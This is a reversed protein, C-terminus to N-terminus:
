GIKKITKKSPKFLELILESIAIIPALGFILLLLVLFPYELWEELPFISAMYQIHFCYLYIALIALELLRLLINRKDNFIWFLWVGIAILPILFSIFFATEISLNQELMKSSLVKYMAYIGFLIPIFLFYNGLTNFQETQNKIQHHNDTLIQNIRDYVFSDFFEQKDSIVKHYHTYDMSSGDCLSFFVKDDSFFIELIGGSLNEDQFNFLLQLYPTKENVWSPYPTDDHPTKSYANKSRFSIEIDAEVGYFDYSFDKYHDGDKQIFELVSAIVEKSVIKIENNPIVTQFEDFSNQKKEHERWDSPVNIKAKIGTLIELCSDYIFKEAFEDIEDTTNEFGDPENMGTTRVRALVNGQNNYHVELELWDLDERQTKISVIISQTENNRDVWSYNDKINILCLPDHTRYTPYYHAQIFILDQGYFHTKFSKHTEKKSEMGELIDKLFYNIIKIEEVGHLDEKTILWDNGM